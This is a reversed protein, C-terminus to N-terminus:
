KRRLGQLLANLTEGVEIRTAGPRRSAAIERCAASLLAGMMRALRDPPVPGIAGSRVAAEIVPVLATDAIEAAVQEVERVGLVAAADQDVIRQYARDAVVLDLRLQYAACVADWADGGAPVGVDGLREGIRRLLCEVVARFLQAKDPFHHYVAGKTVGARSAIADIATAAYGPDTFLEEAADLVAARTDAAHAARRGTM